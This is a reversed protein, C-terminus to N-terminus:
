ALWPRAAIAASSTTGGLLANAPALRERPVLDPVLATSAPGFFGDACGYRGGRGAAAPVVGDRHAPHRGAAGGRGDAGRALLDPDPDAPLPGRGPRRGPDAGARGHGPRGPGAGAPQGSGTVRLVAFSLTVPGFGDAAGSAVLGGLVYRLRGDTLLGPKKGETRGCQLLIRQAGPRPLEPHREAAFEPPGCAGPTVAHRATDGPARGCAAAALSDDLTGHVVQCGQLVLPRRRVGRRWRTGAPGVPPHRRVDHMRSGGLPRLRGEGQGATAPDTPVLRLNAPFPEPQWASPMAMASSAQPAM